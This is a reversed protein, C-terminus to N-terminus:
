ESLSFALSSEFIKENFLCNNGKECRSVGAEDSTSLEKYVAARRFGL